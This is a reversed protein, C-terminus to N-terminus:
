CSYKKESQLMENKSSDISMFTKMTIDNALIDTKM